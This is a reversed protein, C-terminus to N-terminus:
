HGGGGGVGKYMNKIRAVEKEVEDRFGAPLKEYPVPTDNLVINESLSKTIQIRPTLRFTFDLHRSFGFRLHALDPAVRHMPNVFQMVGRTNALQQATWYNTQSGYRGAPAGPAPPASIAEDADQETM